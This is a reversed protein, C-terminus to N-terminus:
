DTKTTAELILSFSKIINKNRNKLKDPLLTPLYIVLARNKKIIDVFIMSKKINGIDSIKPLILSNLEKFDSSIILIITYIINSYNFPKWYLYVPIKLNLM